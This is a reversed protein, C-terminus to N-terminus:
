KGQAEEDVRRIVKETIDAGKNVAVARNVILDFRDEKAIKEIAAQIRRVMADVAERRRVEYDESFEAKKQEFRSNLSRIDRERSFKDSESLTLANRELEEQLKRAEQTLGELERNYRGMETELGERSRKGVASEAFVRDFDVFGVQAVAGTAQAQVLSPLALLALAAFRALGRLGTM